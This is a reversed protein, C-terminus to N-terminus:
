EDNYKIGHIGIELEDTSGIDAHLWGVAFKSETLTDATPVTFLWTPGRRASASNTYNIVVIATFFIIIIKCKM